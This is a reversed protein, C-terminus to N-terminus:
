MDKESFSHSKGEFLVESKGSVLSIGSFHSSGQMEINEVCQVICCVFSHKETNVSDNLWYDTILSHPCDRQCLGIQGLKPPFGDATCFSYFMRFYDLKCVQISCYKKQGIPSTSLYHHLKFFGLMISLIRLATLPWPDAGSGPVLPVFRESFESKVLMDAVLVIKFLLRIEGFIQWLVFCIYMLCFM